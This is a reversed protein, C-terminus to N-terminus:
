RGRCLRRSCHRGGGHALALAGEIHMRTVGGGSIGMRRGASRRSYTIVREDVVVVCYVTSAVVILLLVFGFRVLLSTSPLDLDFKNLIFRSTMYREGFPFSADHFLCVFERGECACLDEEEDDGFCTEDVGESSCLELGEDGLGFALVEDLSAEVGWM